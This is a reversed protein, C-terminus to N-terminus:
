VVTCYLRFNADYSSLNDVSTSFVLLVVYLDTKIGALLVLRLQKPRSKMDQVIRFIDQFSLSLSIYKM